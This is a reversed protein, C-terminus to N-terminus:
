IAEGVGKMVEMLKAYSKESSAGYLIQLGNEGGCDMLVVLNDLSNCYFSIHIDGIWNKLEFSYKMLRSEMFRLEEDTIQYFEEPSYAMMFVAEYVLAAVLFESLTPACLVWNSCDLSSYVPPNSIELDSKKIGACCVGQNENLLILYDSKLLQEQDRFDEPRVWVDQVHHFAETRGAERFFNELVQPLCGFENKMREIEYESYGQLSDVQYLGKILDFFIEM